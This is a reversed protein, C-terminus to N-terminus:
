PQAELASLPAPRRNVLRALILGRDCGEGPWATVIGRAALDLAARKRDPAAFGAVDRGVQRAFDLHDLVTDEDVTRAEPNHFTSM